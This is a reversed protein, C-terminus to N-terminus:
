SGSYNRGTVIASVNERSMGYTAAIDKQKVGADALQKIAKVVAASQGHRERDTMDKMNQEHTGVKMHDPNCCRRNDCSHLIMQTRELKVGHTLEYVTRYPIVKKGNLNWYPTRRKTNYEGTWEWCENPALTSLRKFVDTPKNPMLGSGVLM